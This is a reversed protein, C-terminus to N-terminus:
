VLIYFIESLGSWIVPEFQICLPHIETFNTKQYHYNASTCICLFRIQGTNANQSVRHIPIDHGASVADGDAAADKEETRGARALGHHGFGDGVFDVAREVDDTRCLNEALPDAFGLLVNAFEEFRGLVLGHANDEHVLDLREDRLSSLFSRGHHLADDGLDELFEFPEIAFAISAQEEDGGGVLGPHEVFGHHAGASQVRQNVNGQGVCRRSKPQEFDVEAGFREGVVHVEAIQAIAEVPVAAGVDVVDGLLGCFDGEEVGDGAGLRALNLHGVDVRDDGLHGRRNPGSQEVSELAEGVGSCLIM